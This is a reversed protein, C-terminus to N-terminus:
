LMLLAREEDDAESAAMPDAILAPDLADLRAVLRDRAALLATRYRVAALRSVTAIQAGFRDPLATRAWHDLMHEAKAEIVSPAELIEKRRGFKRLVKARLEPDSPVKEDFRADLAAQEVVDLPVAYAEYRVP